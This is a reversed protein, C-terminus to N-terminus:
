RLTYRTREAEHCRKCVREQPSTRELNCYLWPGWEHQVQFEAAGCRECRRRQDCRDPAAYDFPGWVHVTKAEVKGCSECTRLTTCRGDSNSWEGSHQGVKCRAKALVSM